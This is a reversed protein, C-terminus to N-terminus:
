LRGDGFTVVIKVGSLMSNNKFSTYLTTSFLGQSFFVLQLYDCFNSFSFMSFQSMDEFKGLEGQQLEPQKGKFFSYPQFVSIRWILIRTCPVLNYKVWPLWFKNVCFRCAYCLIVQGLGKLLILLIKLHNLHTQLKQFPVLHFGLVNWILRLDM